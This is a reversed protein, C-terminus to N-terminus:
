GGSTPAGVPVPGKLDRTQLDQILGRVVARYLASDHAYYSEHGAREFWVLRGHNHIRSFLARAEEPRALRDRGGALLLVPVSAPIADIAEVPAMHDLEPLVLPGTLALGAYAIRDLPFPLLNETRNRTATRLDAYPAELIYGRVRTGLEEAAYLAAAAGLSMGQIIIPRGERRQELYGVAAVVDHRASYGIDNVEGTSDGHARLSLLLVSAGQAAFFKALPVQSSRCDGNGHLLLVSPGNDPGPVFWAGLEQGDATPLRLSEMRGWSVAPTPEPFPPRPRRTLQYVCLWSAVLWLLLLTSLTLCARRIGRRRFLGLPNLMLSKPKESRVPHCAASSHGMFILTNNRSAAFGDLHSVEDILRLFEDLPRNSHGVALVELPSAPARSRM